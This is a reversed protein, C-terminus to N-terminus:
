SSGESTGATPERCLSEEDRIEILPRTPRPLRPAMGGSGNLPLSTFVM